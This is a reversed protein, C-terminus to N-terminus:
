LKQASAKRIIGILVCWSELKESHLILFMFAMMQRCITIRNLFNSEQAIHVMKQVGLISGNKDILISADYTKGNELLYINPVAMICYAKCAACFQKIIDSDLPIAYQSVDKGPYQPFFETLQVEPFLVLDAKNEAAAKLLQISKGLNNKISGANAMQALALRIKRKKM